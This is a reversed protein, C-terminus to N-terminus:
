HKSHGLYPCTPGFSEPPVFGYLGVPSHLVRSAAGEECWPNYFVKGSLSAPYRTDSDSPPSVHGLLMKLLPTVWPHPYLGITFYIPWQAHFKSAQLSM